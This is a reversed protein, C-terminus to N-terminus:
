MSAVNREELSNFSFNGSVVEDIDADRGTLNPNSPHEASYSALFNDLNGEPFTLMVQPNNTAVFPPGLTGGAEGGLFDIQMNNMSESLPYNQGQQSLANNNSAAQLVGAPANSANRVPPRGVMDMTGLLPQQQQALSALAAAVAAEQPPAITSIPAEVAYSTEAAAATAAVARASSSRQSRQQSAAAEVRDRASRGRRSVEAAARARSSRPAGGTRRSNRSPGSPNPVLGTTDSTLRTSSSAESTKGEEIM